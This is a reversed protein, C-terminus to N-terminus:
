SGANRTENPFQFQRIISLHANFNVVPTTMKLEKYYPVSARYPRGTSIM